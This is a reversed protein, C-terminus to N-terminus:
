PHIKCIVGAELMEDVKSKVYVHQVPNYSCPPVKIQLKMGEPINLKHVAGPIVNVEKMSLTFCDAFERIIAKVSACKQFRKAYLRLYDM